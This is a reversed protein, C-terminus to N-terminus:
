HKLASPTAKPSEKKRERPWCIQNRIKQIDFIKAGTEALEKSVRRATSYIVVKKGDKLLQSVPDAFDSDGSWLIFNDAKKQSYDLLMDRGIEVDFNCKKDELYKIGQNNLERLRANLYEIDEM